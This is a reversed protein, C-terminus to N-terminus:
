NSIIPFKNFNVTIIAFYQHNDIMILKTMSNHRASVIYVIDVSSLYLRWQKEEENHKYKFLCM